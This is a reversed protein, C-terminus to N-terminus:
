KNKKKKPPPPPPPPPYYFLKENYKQPPLSFYKEKETSFISFKIKVVINEKKQPPPIKFFKIKM